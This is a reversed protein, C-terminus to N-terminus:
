TGFGQRTSHSYESVSTLDEIGGPEPTSTGPAFGPGLVDIDVSSHIREPGDLAEAIAQDIVADVGRTVLEEMRHWRM